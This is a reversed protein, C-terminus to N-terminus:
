SPVSISRDTTQLHRSVGIMSMPGQGHLFIVDCVAGSAEADPGARFVFVCQVDGGVREILVLGASVYVLPKPRSHRLM